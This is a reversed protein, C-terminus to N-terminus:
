NINNEFLLFRNGVCDVVYIDQVATEWIIVESNQHIKWQM